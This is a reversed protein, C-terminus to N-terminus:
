YNDYNLVSLISFGGVKLKNKIEELTYIDISYTFFIHKFMLSKFLSKKTFQKYIKTDVSVYIHGNCCNRIVIKTLNAYSVILAEDFMITTERGSALKINSTIM